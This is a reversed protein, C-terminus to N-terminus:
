HCVPLVASRPVLCYWAAPGGQCRGAGIRGCQSAGLRRWGQCCLEATARLSLAGSCVAAAGPPRRPRRPPRSGDGGPAAAPHHCTGAHKCGPVPEAPNLSRTPSSTHAVRPDPPRCYRQSPRLSRGLMTRLAACCLAACCACCRGVQMPEELSSGMESGDLGCLRLRESLSAESREGADTGGGGASSGTPAASLSGSGAEPIGDLRPQVPAAGEEEDSDGFPALSAFPSDNTMSAAPHLQVAAPAPPQPEAQQQAQQAEQQQQAQQAQQTAAMEEGDQEYPLHASAFPSVKGPSGPEPQFPTSEHGGYARKGAGSAQGRKAKSGSRPVARAPLRLGPPGHLSPPPPAPLTPLERAGGARAAATADSTDLQIAGQSLTHHSGLSAFSHGRSYHQELEQLRPISPPLLLREAASHGHM